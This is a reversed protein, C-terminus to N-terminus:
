ILTLTLLFIFIIDFIRVMKNFNKRFLYLIFILSISFIKLLMNEYLLAFEILMVLLLFNVFFIGNNLGISVITTNYGANKDYEYDEIENRLELIISYTAIILIILITKFNLNFQSSFLFLGIGFFISHSLLDLFPKEKFRLPKLSYFIGLLLSIIYIAQGIPHLTFSYMISFFILTLLLLNLLRADIHKKVLINKNIKNPNIKDGEIDSINNALYISAMYLFFLPSTCLIKSLIEILSKTFYLIGYTYLGFYGRWESIRFIKLMDIIKIIMSIM